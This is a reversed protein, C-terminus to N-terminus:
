EEAILYLTDEDPTAPMESEDELYEYKPYQPHNHNLDITITNGDTLTIVITGDQQSSVSAFGVGAPGDKGQLSELWEEETGVFGEEVAVEYASKGAPGTGQEVIREAAAAATDARSTASVSASHDEVATQHDLVAAAHDSVATEHDFVAAAHDDVATAHDGVAAAHDIGFLRERESEASIRENESVIRAAEALTAERNTSVLAIYVELIASDIPICGTCTHTITAM